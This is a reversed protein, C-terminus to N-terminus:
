RMRECVAPLYPPLNKLDLDTTVELELNKVKERLGKLAIEEAGLQGQLLNLAGQATAKQLEIEHPTPNEGALQELASLEYQLVLLTYNARDIKERLGDRRDFFAGWGEKERMRMERLSRRMETIKAQEEPLIAQSINLIRNQLSQSFHQHGNRIRRIAFELAGHRGQELAKEARIKDVYLERESVQKWIPKLVAIKGDSRGYTSHLDRIEPILQTCLATLHATLKSVEGIEEQLRAADDNANALALRSVLVAALLWRM